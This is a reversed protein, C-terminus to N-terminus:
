TKEGVVEKVAWRVKKLAANQEVQVVGQTNGLTTPAVLDRRTDPNHVPESPTEEVHADMGDPSWSIQM